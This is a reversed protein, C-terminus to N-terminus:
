AQTLRNEPQRCILLKLRQAKGLMCGTWGSTATMELISLSFPINRGQKRYTQKKAKISSVLGPFDSGTGESFSSFGAEGIRHVQGPTRM